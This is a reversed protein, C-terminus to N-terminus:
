THPHTSTPNRCRQYQPLGTEIVGDPQGFGVAAVAEHTAPWVALGQSGHPWGNDVSAVSLKHPVRHGRSQACTTHSDGQNGVDRRLHRHPHHLAGTGGRLCYRPGTSENKGVVRWPKAATVAHIRGQEHSRFLTTYLFLTDTRTSRPPRRKM